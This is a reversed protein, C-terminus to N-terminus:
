KRLIKACFIRFDKEIIEVFKGSNKSKFQYKIKNKEREKGKRKKKERIEERV